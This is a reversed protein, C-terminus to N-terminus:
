VENGEGPPSIIKVNGESNNTKRNVGMTGSGKELSKNSATQSSYRSAINQEGPSTAEFPKPFYLKGPKQGPIDLM